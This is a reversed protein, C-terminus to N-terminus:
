LFRTFLIQILILLGPVSLLYVLILLVHELGKPTIVPQGWIKHNSYDVEVLGKAAQRANDPRYLRAGYRTTGICTKSPKDNM